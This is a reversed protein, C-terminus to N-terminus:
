PNLTASSLLSAYSREPTEGESAPGGAVLSFCVDGECGQVHVAVEGNRELLFAVGAAEAVSQALPLSSLPIRSYTFPTSGEVGTGQQYELRETLTMGTLSQVVIMQKSELDQFLMLTLEVGDHTTTHTNAVFADPLTISINGVQRVQPEQAFVTPVQLAIALCLLALARMSMSTISLWVSRSGVWHTAHLTCRWSSTLVISLSRTIPLIGSPVQSKPGFSVGWSSCM